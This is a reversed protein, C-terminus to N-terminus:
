KRFDFGDEPTMENLKKMAGLTIKVVGSPVSHKLLLCLERNSLSFVKRPNQNRCQTM